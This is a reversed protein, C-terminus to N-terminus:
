EGYCKLVGSLTINSPVQSSPRIQALAILLQKWLPLQCPEWLLMLPFLFILRSSAPQSCTAERKERPSLKAQNGAYSFSQGSHLRHSSVLDSNRVHIKWMQPHPENKRVFQMPNCEAGLCMLPFGPTAFESIVPSPSHPGEGHVASTASSVLM